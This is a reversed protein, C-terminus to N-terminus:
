GVNLILKANHTIMTSQMPDSIQLQVSVLHFIVRNLAKSTLYIDCNVFSRLPDRIPLQYQDLNANSNSVM